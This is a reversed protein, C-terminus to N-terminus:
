PGGSDARVFRGDRGLLARDAGTDGGIRDFGALLRCVLNWAHSGVGIRISNLDRAARSFAAQGPDPNVEDRCPSRSDFICAQVRTRVGGARSELDPRAANEAPKRGKEIRVAVEPVAVAGVFKWHRSFVASSYRSVSRLETHSPTFEAHSPIIGCAALESASILLAFARNPNSGVCVM